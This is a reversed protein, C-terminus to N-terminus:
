RFSQNSFIIQYKKEYHIESFQMNVQISGGPGYSSIEGTHTNGKTVDKESYSWAKAMTRHRFGTGFPERDENSESYADYCHKIANQFDPHIQCSDNRVRIQRLRPLGSIMLM